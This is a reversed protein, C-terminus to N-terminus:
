IGLAEPFHKDSITIGRTNIAKFKGETLSYERFNRTPLLHRLVNAARSEEDRYHTPIYPINSPKRVIKRVFFGYLRVTGTDKYVKAGPIPNGDLGILPEYHEERAQVSAAKEREGAKEQRINEAAAKVDEVPLPNKSPGKLASEVFHKAGEKIGLLTVAKNADGNAIADALADNALIAELISADRQRAKEYNIHIALIVDQVEGTGEVGNEVMADIEADTIGDELFPLFALFEEQTKDDMKPADKGARKLKLAEVVIPKRSKAGVRAAWKRTPKSHYGKISVFTSGAPLAGLLAKAVKSIGVESM